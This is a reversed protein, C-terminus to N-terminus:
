LEQNFFIVVQDIVGHLILDNHGAGAIVKLLKKEAKSAEFLLKGFKPPIITDKEGHIVLLSARAKEVNSESAIEHRFLTRVPFIPYKSAALKALSNYPSELAVGAVERQSAIHTAIGTGLSHAYLFVPQGRQEVYWDFTALGDALLAAASPEGESGGYGRYEALLVNFGARYLELGRQFEYKASSGNGHFFLVSPAEHSRHLRLHKLIVGDAAKMTVVEAFEPLAIEIDPPAPFVFQDQFAYLLSLMGVYLFLLLLGIVGAVKLVIAM